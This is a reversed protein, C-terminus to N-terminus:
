GYMYLYNKEEGCASIYMCVYLISLERSKTAPNLKKSTEVLQSPHEDRQVEGEAQLTGQRHRHGMSVGNSMEIASRHNLDPCFDVTPPPL